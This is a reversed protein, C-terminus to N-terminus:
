RREPPDGCVHWRGNGDLGGRLRVLDGAHAVINGDEDRFDISPEVATGAQIVYGAPWVLPTDRGGSTLHSGGDLDAMLTGDILAAPCVDVLGGGACGAVGLGFLAWLVLPAVLRTGLV